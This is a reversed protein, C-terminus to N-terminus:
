TLLLLLLHAMCTAILHQYLTGSWRIKLAFAWMVMDHEAVWGRSSHWMTRYAKDHIAVSDLCIVHGRADWANTRRPPVHVSAPTWYSWNTVTFHARDSLINAIVFYELLEHLCIECFWSFPWSEGLTDIIPSSCLPMVLGAPLYAAAYRLKFKSCLQQM